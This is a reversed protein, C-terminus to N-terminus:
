VTISAIAFPHSLSFLPANSFVAFVGPKIKQEGRVFIDLVLLVEFLAANGDHYKTVGLSRRHVAVNVSNGRCHVRGSGAAKGLHVNRVFSGAHVPTRIAVNRSYRPQRSFPDISNFFEEVIVRGMM